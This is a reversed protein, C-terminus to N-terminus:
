SREGTADCMPMALPVPQTAIALGINDNLIQEGCQITSYFHIRAIGEAKM